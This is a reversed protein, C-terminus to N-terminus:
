IYEGPVTIISHKSQARERYAMYSTSVIIIASGSATSLDIVEGFIIYALFAVFILETFVFPMVITLEACEYSKTVCIINIVFLAALLVLLLIDRYNPTVWMFIAVPLTCIASFLAFYFTNVFAHHTKAAFKIMIDTTSWLFAALVVLYGAIEFSDLRPKLIILMGM